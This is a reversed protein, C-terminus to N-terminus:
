NILLWSNNDFASAVWLKSTGTDLYYQGVYDPTIVTNPNVTVASVIKGFLRRPPNTLSTYAIEKLRDTTKFSAGSESFNLVNRLEVAGLAIDSDGIGFWCSGINVTGTTGGDLVLDGTIDINSGGDISIMPPRAPNGIDIASWLMTGALPAANVISIGSVSIKNAKLSRPIIGEWSGGNITLNVVNELKCFSNSTATDPLGQCNTLELDLIWSPNTQDNTNFQYIPLSSKKWTCSVFKVGIFSNKNTDPQTASQANLFTISSVNDWEVNTFRLGKNLQSAPFGFCQSETEAILGNSYNVNTCGAVLLANNKFPTPALASFRSTSNRLQFNSINVNDCNEIQILTDCDFAFYNTLNIDKPRGDAVVFGVNSDIVILNNVNIRQTTVDSLTGGGIYNEIGRIYLAFLNAQEIFINDFNLDSCGVVGGTPDDESVWMGSTGFTRLNSFTCKTCGRIYISTGNSPFSVEDIYSVGILNLDRITVGDLEQLVFIHREPNNISQRIKSSAGEGFYTQNSTPRIWDSELLYDGAPFFVSTANFSAAAAQISPTDDAVGDGIAGFQRVNVVATEVRAAINGNALTFAGGLEDVSAGPFATTYQGATFIKYDTGGTDGTSWYGDTKVYQGETISAAKLDAVTEFIKMSNERTIDQLATLVTGAPFSELLTIQTNSDLTLDQLPFLRTNDMGYGSIYYVSQMADVVSFTLVTQASALVVNEVLAPPLDAGAGGSGTGGYSSADVYAKTALDSASLPNSANIGRYNNFDLHVEMQNPSDGKRSLSDKIAVQIKELEANIAPATSVDGTKVYRTM